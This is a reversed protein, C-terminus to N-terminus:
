FDFDLISMYAILRDSVLEGEQEEYMGLTIEAVFIDFLLGM